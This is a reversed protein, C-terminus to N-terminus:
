TTERFLVQTRENNVFDMHFTRVKVTAPAIRGVANSFLRLDSEQRGKLTACHELFPPGSNAFAADYRVCRDHNIGIVHEISPFTDISFVLNEEFHRFAPSPRFQGAACLVGGFESLLLCEDLKFGLEHQVFLEVATRIKPDRCYVIIAKPSATPLVDYTCAPASTEITISV